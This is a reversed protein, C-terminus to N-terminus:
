FAIKRLVLVYIKSIFFSFSKFKTLLSKIYITKEVQQPISKYFFYQGTDM